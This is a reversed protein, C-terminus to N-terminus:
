YEEDDSPETTPAESVETPQAEPSPTILLDERLTLVEELGFNSVVVVGPRGPVALYTSGGTPSERGVQFGLRTGDNLVIEVRYRPNDLHFASLDTVELVEARPSPAALWSIAREVRAADAPASEPSVIHWLQDADRRVEMAGGAEFDEIILAVIDESSM